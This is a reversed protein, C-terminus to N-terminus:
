KNLLPQIAMDYVVKAILTAVVATLLTKTNM